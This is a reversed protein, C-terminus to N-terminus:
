GGHKRQESQYHNLLREYLDDLSAQGAQRCETQAVKLHREISGHEPPRRDASAVEVTQPWQTHSPEIIDISMSVRLSGPERSTSLVAIDGNDCPAKALANALLQENRLRTWEASEKKQQELHRNWTIQLNALAMVPMAFCALALRPWHGLGAFLGLLTGLVAIWLAAQAPPTLQNALGMGLWAQVILLALVAAIGAAFEPRLASGARLSGKWLARLGEAASHPAQDGPKLHTGKGAQLLNLQQATRQVPIIATFGFLGILAWPLPLILALNCLLYITALLNADWAVPVGAATATVKIRRFLSFGWFHAFVARWFSSMEEGSAARLRTWNQYCWYREYLGVTCFSLVIFTRTQVAFLSLAGDAINQSNGRGNPNSDLGLKRM